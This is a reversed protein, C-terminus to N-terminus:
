TRRNGDDVQAELRALRNNVRRLERRIAELEQGLTLSAPDAEKTVTTSLDRVFVGRGQHSIAAGEERLVRIANQATMLAIGFEKAM